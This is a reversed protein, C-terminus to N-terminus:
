LQFKADTSYCSGMGQVGSGRSVVITDEVERKSQKLYNRRPVITCCKEKQLQSIESLTIDKLNIWTTLVEKDKFASYYEIRETDIQTCVCVCVCVCMVNKIWEEISGYKLQKWIKATTFWVAILLYRNSIRIEIRKSVWELSPLQIM